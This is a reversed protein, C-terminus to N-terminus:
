QGCQNCAYARQQLSGSVQREWKRRGRGGYNGWCVPCRLHPKVGQGNQPKVMKAIQERLQAITALAREHEELPVSRHKSM